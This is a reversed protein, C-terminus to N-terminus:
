DITNGFQMHKKVVYRGCPEWPQKKFSNVIARNNKKLIKFQFSLGMLSLGGLPGFEELGRPPLEGLQQLLGVLLHGGLQAIGGVAAEREGHLDLLQVGAWVRGGRGPLCFWEWQIVPHTQAKWSYLLYALHLVRPKKICDWFKWTQDRLKHM